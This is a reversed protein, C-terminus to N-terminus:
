AGHEPERERHLALIRAAPRIQPLPPHLLPSITASSRAAIADRFPGADHDAHGARRELTARFAQRVANIETAHRAAEDPTTVAPIQDPLPAPEASRLAPLQTHPHRRRLEAHALVALHRPRATAKEWDARDAALAQDTQERQAYFAAAAKASSALADHRAATELDGQRRALAAEALSRTIATQMDLAAARVQRLEAAPHPPAWATEAAYGDQLQHLAGDSLGSMDHQDTRTIASWAAHWAARKEPSDGAPEPGVPETDHDWGYLERYAGVHAARTQWDLRALPDDPVPGLAATAWAPSHDAAFEGIRTKRDDMAAAIQTLYRQRDGGCAPVLQSWPRLPAPTAPGIARRIRSDLVSAVDRAGALSRESVARQVVATIDLGATEAARLTRWLWTAQPTDLEAPDRGPPLAAAVCSRYRERHLGATEGDWIAHLIALHDADTLARRLTTTASEDGTARDLVDRLVARADRTHLNRAGRAPILQHGGRERELQEHRALEPAPLTGPAPDPIEAPRTFVFARNLAAGRTM